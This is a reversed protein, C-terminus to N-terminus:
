LILSHWGLWRKNTLWSELICSFSIISWHYKSETCLNRCWHGSLCTGLCMVNLWLSLTDTQWTNHQVVYRFLYWGPLITELFVYMNITLQRCGEMSQDTGAIPSLMWQWGAAQRHTGGCQNKKITPTLSVIPCFLKSLISAFQIEEGNTPHRQLHISISLLATSALIVLGWCWPDIVNVSVYCCGTPPFLCYPFVIHM